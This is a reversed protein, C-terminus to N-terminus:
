GPVNFTIVIKVEYLNNIQLLVYWLFGAKGTLSINISYRRISFRSNDRMIIRADEKKNFQFM